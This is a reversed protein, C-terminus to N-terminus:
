EFLRHKLAEDRAGYVIRDRLRDDLDTFKCADSFKRLEAIYETIAEGPAQDCKNFM